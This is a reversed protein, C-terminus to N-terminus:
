QRGNATEEAVQLGVMPQGDVHGARRAHGLLVPPERGVDSTGLEVSQELQRLCARCAIVEHRKPVQRHQLQEIRGAHPQGLQDAEIEAV